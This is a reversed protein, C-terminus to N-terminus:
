RLCTLIRLLEQTQDLSEHMDSSAAGSAEKSAWTMIGDRLTPALQPLENFVNLRQQTCAHHKQLLVGALLYSNETYFAQGKAKLKKLWARVQSLDLLCRYRQAPGRLPVYIHVTTITHPIGEYQQLCIRIIVM